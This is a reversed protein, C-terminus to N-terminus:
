IFFTLSFFNLVNTSVLEIDLLDTHDLDLHTLGMFTSKKVMINYNLAIKKTVASHPTKELSL